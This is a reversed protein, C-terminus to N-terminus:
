YYVFPMVFSNNILVFGFAHNKSCLKLAFIALNLLLFVLVFHWGGDEGMCADWEHAHGCLGAALKFLAFVSRTKGTIVEQRHNLM